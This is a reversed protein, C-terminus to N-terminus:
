LFKAIELLVESVSSRATVQKAQLEKPSSGELIVGLLRCTVKRGEKM